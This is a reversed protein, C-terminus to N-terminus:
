GSGAGITAIAISNTTGRAGLIILAAALILQSILGGYVIWNYLRLRHRTKREEGILSYYISTPAEADERVFVRRLWKPMTHPRDIPAPFKVIPQELPEAKLLEEDLPIGMLGRFENVKL